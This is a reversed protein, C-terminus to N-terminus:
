KYLRKSDLDENQISIYCCVDEYREMLEERITPSYHVNTAFLSQQDINICIGLECLLIILEQISFWTMFIDWNDLITLAHTSSSNYLVNKILFIVMKIANTNHMFENIPKKMMSEESKKGYEPHDMLFSDNIYYHKYKGNAVYRIINATCLKSIHNTSLTSVSLKLCKSLDMHTIGPNAIIEYVIARKKKDHELISMDYEM